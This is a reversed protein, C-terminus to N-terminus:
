RRPDGVDLERRTARLRWARSRAREAAGSPLHPKRAAREAEDIEAVIHDVLQRMIAQPVTGGRERLLDATDVHGGALALALPTWGTRDRDEQPDVLRDVDAGADLMARVSETQGHCAAQNLPSRVGIYWRHPDGGHSLLLPMLTPRELAAELASDQYGGRRNPDAGRGLLLAVLPRDGIEVARRLAPGCTFDDSCIHVANVDVGDDLWAVVAARDGRGAAGAMRHAPDFPDRLLFEGFALLVVLGVALVASGGLILLASISAGGNAHDDAVADPM